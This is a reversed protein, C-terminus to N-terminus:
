GAGRYHPPIIKLDDNGSLLREAGDKRSLLREAGDKHSLLREAGDKHSMAGCDMIFRRWAGPSSAIFAIASTRPKNRM